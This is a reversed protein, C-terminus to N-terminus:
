DEKKSWGKFPEFDYGKERLYEYTLQRELHRMLFLYYYNLYLEEDDTQTSLLFYRNSVDLYFDLLNVGKFFAKYFDNDAQMEAKEKIRLDEKM